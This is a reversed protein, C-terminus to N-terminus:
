ERNKSRQMKVPKSRDNLKAANTSSALRDNYGVMPTSIRSKDCPKCTQSQEDRKAKRRSVM